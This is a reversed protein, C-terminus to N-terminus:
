SRIEPMSPRGRPSRLVILLARRLRAFSNGTKSKSHAAHPVVLSIRTRDLSVFFGLHGEQPFVRSFFAKEAGEMM